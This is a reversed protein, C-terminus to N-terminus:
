GELFGPIRAFLDRLVANPSAEVQARMVQISPTSRGTPDRNAFVDFNPPLGGGGRAIPGAVAPMPSAVPSPPPGGATESSVPLGALAMRQEVNQREGHPLGTPVLDESTSQARTTM